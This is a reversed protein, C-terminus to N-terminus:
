LGYRTILQGIGSEYTKNVDLQKNKFAELLFPNAKINHGPWGWHIPAAYPLRKYGVRIIGTKAQGSSRLSDRLAFSRTPALRRAEKEVHAAAASHVIKLDNLGDAFRSLKRKLQKIDEADIAFDLGADAPMHNVQGASPFWWSGEVLCSWQRSM